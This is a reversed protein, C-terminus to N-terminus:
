TSTSRSRPTGARPGPGYSLPYRPLRPHVQENGIAPLLVRGDAAADSRGRPRLRDEELERVFGKPKPLLVETELIRADKMSGAQQEDTMPALGGRQDLHELHRAYRTSMRPAQGSRFEFTPSNSGIYFRMYSTVLMSDDGRVVSVTPRGDYVRIRMRPGCRRRVETDSPDYGLSAAARPRPPM